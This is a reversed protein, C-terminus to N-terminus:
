GFEYGFLDIDRKYLNAVFDQTEDDYYDQWPKNITGITKNIHKLNIQPLDIKNCIKDFDNQLNEFKGIFDVLPNGNEDIIFDSQPRVLWTYGETVTRNFEYLIFLKFQFRMNFGLARYLSVFRSWPNRVFSFTFYSEYQEQTMHGCSVYERAKLHALRLPGKKPNINPRLLLAARKEWTLGHLDLFAHEISQGATKPIHVFICKHQHSIM